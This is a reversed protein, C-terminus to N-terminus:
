AMDNLTKNVCSFVETSLEVAYNIDFTRVVRVTQKIQWNRQIDVM